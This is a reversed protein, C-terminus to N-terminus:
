HKNMREFGRGFGHVQKELEDALVGSACGVVEGCTDAEAMCSVLPEYRDGLEPAADALDSACEDIDSSSVDNMLVGCRDVINECAARAKGHTTHSSVVKVVGVVLLVVVALGVLKKM